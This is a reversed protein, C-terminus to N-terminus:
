VAFALWRAAVSYTNSSNSCLRVKFGTNTVSGNVVMASLLAIYRDSDQAAKDLCVMVVPTVGADFATPFTVTVEAYNQKISVSDTIGGQISITGEIGAHAYVKWYLDIRKDTNTADSYGGIAVGNNSAAIHIPVEARSVNAYKYNSTEGGAIFVLTFYWDSGNSFTNSLKVQTESTIYTQIATGSAITISDATSIDPTTNQAYYLKLYAGKSDSLGATNNMAAKISAYVYEATPLETTGDTSRMVEFKDLVPAYDTPPTDAGSITIMDDYQGDRFYPIYGSSSTGLVWNIELTGTKWAAIAATSQDETLSITTTVIDSEKPGTGYVKVSVSDSSALVVGNAILQMTITYTATRSSGGCKCWTGNTRTITSITQYKDSNYEFLDNVNRSQENEKAKGSPTATITYQSM